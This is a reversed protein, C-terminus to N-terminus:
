GRFGVSPLTYPSGKDKICVPTSNLETSASHLIGYPTDPQSLSFSVPTWRQRTRPPTVSRPRPVPVADPRVRSSTWQTPAGILRNVVLLYILLYREPVLYLNDTYPGASADGFGLM